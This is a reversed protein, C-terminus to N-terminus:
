LSLDELMSPLGLEHLKLTKGVMRYRHRWLEARHPNEEWLSNIVYEANLDLRLQIERLSPHDELGALIAEADACSYIGLGLDLFELSDLRAMARMLDDVKPEPEGGGGYIIGTNPAFALSKLSRPLRELDVFEDADINEVGTLDLTELAELGELHHAFDSFTMGENHGHLALERLPREPGSELLMLIAQLDQENMGNIGLRFTELTAQHDPLLRLLHRLFAGSSDKMAPIHPLDLRVLSFGAVLPRLDVDRAEVMADNGQVPDVILMLPRLPPAAPKAAKEEKSEEAPSPATAKEEFPTAAPLIRGARLCLRRLSPCADLFPRVHDIGIAGDGQHGAVEITLDEVQGMRGPLHRWAESGPVFNRLVLTRLHMLSLPSGARVEADHDLIFPKPDTKRPFQWLRAAQTYHGRSTAALRHFDKCGLFEAINSRPVDSLPALGDRRGTSLLRVAMPGWPRPAPSASSSSSSAAAPLPEPAALLAPAALPVALPPAAPAAPEAEPAVRSRKALVAEAVDAPTPTRPRKSSGEGPNALLIPGVLFPLFLFPSRSRM